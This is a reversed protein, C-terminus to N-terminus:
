RGAKEGTITTTSGAQGLNWTVTKTLSGYTKFEKAWGLESNISVSAHGYVYHAGITTQMMILNLPMM